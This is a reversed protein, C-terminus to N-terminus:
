KKQVSNNGYNKKHEQIANIVINNIENLEPNNFVYEFTVNIM